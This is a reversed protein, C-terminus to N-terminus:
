PRGAAATLSMLTAHSSINYIHACKTHPTDILSLTFFSHSVTHSHFSVRASVCLLVFVCRDCANPLPGTARFMLSAVMLSAVAM